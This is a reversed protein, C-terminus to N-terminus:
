IPCSSHCSLFSLIPFLSSLLNDVLGVASSILSLFKIGLIELASLSSNFRRILILNSLLNDMLGVSVSKVSLFIKLNWVSSCALCFCSSVFTNNCLFSLMLGVTESNLFRFIRLNLSNISTTFQSCYSLDASLGQVLNVGLSLADILFSNFSKLDKSISTCSSLRWKVLNWLGYCGRSYITSTHDLKNDYVNILMALLLSMESTLQNTTEKTTNSTM